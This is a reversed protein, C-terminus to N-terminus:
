ERPLAIWLAIYCGAAAGLSVFGAVVTAIRVATASVGLQRAVGGCVGAILRDNKARAIRRNM